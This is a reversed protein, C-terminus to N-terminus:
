HRLLDLATAVGVVRGKADDDIDQGVLDVGSDDSLHAFEATAGDTQVVLVSCASWPSRSVKGILPPSGISRPRTPWTVRTSPPSMASNALGAHDRDNRREGVVGRAAPKVDIGVRGRTGDGGFELGGLEDHEGVRRADEAVWLVGADSM